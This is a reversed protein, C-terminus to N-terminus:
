DTLAQYVLAKFKGSIEGHTMPSQQMYIEGILQKKPDAWYTTGFFGGWAFSGESQGTQAQGAATTIEFGLGFKDKGLSLDGIQNSTMMEITRPALLRHGNYVGGNLLMQLFMAYDKVTSSLGAGGAFYVGKTTPYNSTIGAVGPHSDWGIRHHQADESYATVLRNYKNAPLYFYTDNMGLPQFIRQQFFKDLSMGSMVEVLYGLVDVNLGYTWKEGPQHALPMTGLTNVMNGLHMTDNGFAPAFGAKAYISSM